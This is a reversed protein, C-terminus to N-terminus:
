SEQPKSCCLSAMEETGMGGRTFPSMTLSTTLSPMLCHMWQMHQCGTRDWFRCTGCTTNGPSISYWLTISRYPLVRRSKWCPVTRAVETGRRLRERGRERERDRERVELWASRHPKLFHPHGLIGTVTLGPICWWFQSFPWSPRRNTILFMARKDIICMRFSAARRVAM